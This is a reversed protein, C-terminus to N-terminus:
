QQGIVELLFEWNVGNLNVNSGNSQLRVHINSIPTNSCSYQSYYKKSNYDIYEGPNVDVPITFTSYYSGNAGGYNVNNKFEDIVIDLADPTNVNCAYDGTYSSAGTDDASTDFGILSGIQGTAATWRLSFTSGASITAKLTTSSYSGTFTLTGSDATMVSAIHNLLSTATYSGKTLTSTINSAGDNFLIKNNSDDVNYITHPVTARLLKFKSPPIYDAFRVTFDTTSDSANIRDKSRIRIYRKM